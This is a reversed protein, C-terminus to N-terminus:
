KEIENILECLAQHVFSADLTERERSELWAGALWLAYSEAQDFDFKKKAEQQLSKAVKIRGEKSWNPLDRKLAYTKQLFKLLAQYRVEDDLNQINEGTSLLGERLKKGASEEEAEKLKNAFRNFLSTHETGKQSTNQINEILFDSDTQENTNALSANGEETKRFVRGDSWVCIQTGCKPCDFDSVGGASNAKCRMRQGCKGCSFHWHSISYIGSKYEDIVGTFVLKENAHSM